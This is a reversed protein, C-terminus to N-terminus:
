RSASSRGPSSTNPRGAGPSGNTGPTTGKPRLEGALWANFAQQVRFPLAQIDKFSPYGSCLDATAQLLRNTLHDGLDDLDVEGGGLMESLAQDAEGEPLDALRERIGKTEAFIAKLDKFYQNITKTSPEPIVGKPGGYASFDFELGEVATGADFGAM